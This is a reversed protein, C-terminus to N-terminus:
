VQPIAGGGGEGGASVTVYEPGHVLSKVIERASELRIGAGRPLCKNVAFDCWICFWFGWVTTTCNEDLLCHECNIHKRLSEISGFQKLCKGCTLQDNIIKNIEVESSTRCKSTSRLHKTLSYKNAFPNQCNPCFLSQGNGTLPIPPVDESPATPLSVLAQGSGLSVPPVVAAGAMARYDTQFPM